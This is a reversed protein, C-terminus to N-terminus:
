PAGASHGSRAEDVLIRLRKVFEAGQGQERSDHASMDDMDRIVFGEYGPAATISLQVRGGAMGAIGEYPVDSVHQDIWGNSVLLLRHLTAAIICDRPLEGVQQPQYDDEGWVMAEIQEGDALIEGLKRREGGHNDRHGWVPHQLKWQASIWRERSMKQGAAATHERMLDVFPRAASEDRFQLVHIDDGSDVLRVKRGGWYEVALIAGHPWGDDELHTALIRRDTALAVAGDTETELRAAIVAM